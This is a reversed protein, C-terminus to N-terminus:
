RSTSIGASTAPSVTTAASGSLVIVSEVQAAGSERWGPSGIV